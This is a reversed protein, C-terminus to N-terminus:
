VNDKVEFVMSWGYLHLDKLPESSFKFSVVKGSGRVINRTVITSFGTDFTDFLDSPIYRRKYRYAQFPRGWKNSQESNSWDWRSQILCSSQNNIIEVPGSTDISTETRRLHATLYPVGKRRQFDSGSLYSTVTYAAADRGGNVSRWDIFDEDTYNAFTYSLPTTNTIVIYSLEGQNVDVQARSQITVPDGASTVTIGETTVFEIDTVFSYPLTSVVSTVKPLNGASAYIRNLYFADLVLDYVLEMTETVTNLNVDYVWRIKRDFTDYTGIAELKSKEDISNFLRQIKNVIINVSEFDGYQNQRLHYIGDDSWYFITNDVVDVSNPNVCGRDSVKEVVYSTATFGSDSTGVIRWVGNRALIILSGAVNVMKNIGFAENIRIFGGDTDIIDPFDKATPDGEQYCLALDAKNKALRSFLVYSSMKPSNADGGIVEGSFGGYWARGAYESVVTPGGPTRDTPLSNVRFIINPYIEKNRRENALRSAGRDLADIIFYGSAAKGSGLPNKWLEESWFRDSVRNEARDTNPYLASNVNDSNSPYLNPGYTIRGGERTSNYFARIPDNLNETDWVIMRPIGFTQNRLNYTHANTLTPPRYQLNSSLFLDMGKYIDEVGFLDRILLTYSSKTIVNGELEYVLPQKQGTAIVLMGDVTAYTFQTALETSFTEEYIKNNSIPRSALDFMKIHNGPQVVMVNRNVVGGANKWRYSTQALSDQGTYNIPTSIIEHGEEFAMGLRRQRGGDKNLVMNQEDLSSNDPATLPSADSILGANFTNMEVIQKAM